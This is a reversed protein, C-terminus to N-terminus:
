DIRTWTGAKKAALRKLNDRELWAFEPPDAVGALLKANKQALKHMKKSLRMSEDFRGAGEALLGDLQLATFDTHVLVRQLFKKQAGRARRIAAALSKRAGPLGRKFRQVRKPDFPREESRGHIHPRLCDYALTLYQDVADAGQGYTLDLLRRREAAYDVSADWSARAQMWRAMPTPWFSQARSCDVMGTIGHGPYSKMDHCMMEPVNGEFFDRKIPLWCYYDFVYNTGHFDELWQKFLPFYEGNMPHYLKNAPPFTQLPRGTLCKPDDLTHEYCRIFPAYMLIINGHRNDIRENPPPEMLVSYSLVEVRMDPRVRHVERSIRNILQVWLDSPHVKACQECECWNNFGDAMWVSLVDMEKPAKAAFDRILGAMIKGSRPNSLCLQTNGPSNHYIGRQGNLMAAMDLYPPKLEYKEQKKSGPPFGLTWATWGHGMSEYILGLEKATGVLQKDYRHAQAPTISHGLAMEFRTKASHGEIFLHNLRNRAMWRLFEQGQEVTYAGALGFGRYILSAQHDIDFGDLPIDKLRPIVQGEEGPILWAFGLQDLYTYVAFLVSRPNSGALILKGDQSRVIVQDIWRDNSRAEPLLNGLDEFTGLLIDADKPSTTISFLPKRTAATLWHILEKKALQVPESPNKRPLVCVRYKM